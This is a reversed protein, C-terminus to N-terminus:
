FYTCDKLEMKLGDNSGKIRLDPYWDKFIELLCEAAEEEIEHKRRKFLDMNEYYDPHEFHIVKNM